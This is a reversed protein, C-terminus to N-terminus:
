CRQVGRGISDLTRDIFALLRFGLPSLLFMGGIIGVILGQSYLRYGYYELLFSLTTCLFLLLLAKHKQRTRQQSNRTFKRMFGGPVWRYIAYIGAILTFLILSYTVSGSWVPLSLYVLSAVIIGSLILCRAFVKFQSGGAITRWVVLTLIVTLTQWFLGLFFAIFLYLSMQILIRLAIEVSFAYLHIQMDSAQLTRGMYGAARLSVNRLM